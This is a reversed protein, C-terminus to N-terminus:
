HCFKNSFIISGLRILNSGESLALEYDASMGMSLINFDDDQNFYSNKLNNFYAKLQKFDLKIREQESSNTAMGMVGLIKINKLRTFREDKVMEAAEVYEFGFKTEEQAVHFQLLCNIIRGCKQAQKDIEELLKLSDVSQILDIFNAIQKVKNTQLHGILQWKIDTPLNEKALLLNQVKNEAFVRQGLDYIKKINEVTQNKSVVVLEANAALKKKIDLYNM